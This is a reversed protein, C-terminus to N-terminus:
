FLFIGATEIIGAIILLPIILYLFVKLSNILEYCLHERLRKDGLSSFLLIFFLIFPFIALPILFYAYNNKKHKEFFNYILGFGMKLGLGLSIILAPIELIGHPLLSFVATVGSTQIAKELVFGLFYGNFIGIMIPYFAIIMGFVMGFFGAVINNRCIFIFLQFFNKGEIESLLKKLYGEIYNKIFAPQYVLGLIIAACFIVAIIMFFNKNNELYKVAQKM